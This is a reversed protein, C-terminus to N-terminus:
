FDKFNDEELPIVQEPNLPRAAAQGKGRSLTQRVASLRSKLGGGSRTSLAGRGHHGGNKSGALAVLEAVAGKM